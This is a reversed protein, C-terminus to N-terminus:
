ISQSAPIPRKSAKARCGEDIVVNDLSQAADSIYTKYLTPKM